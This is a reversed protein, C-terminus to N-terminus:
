WVLRFIKKHTQLTSFFIIRTRVWFRNLFANQIKRQDLSIWFVTIRIEARILLLTLISVSVLRFDTQILVSFGFKESVTRFSYDHERLTPFPRNQNLSWNVKWRETNLPAEHQLCAAGKANKWQQLSPFM